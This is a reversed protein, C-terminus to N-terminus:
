SKRQWLQHQAAIGWVKATSRVLHYTQHLIIAFLGTWIWAITTFILSIILLLSLLVLTIGLIIPLYRVSLLLGAFIGKKSIHGFQMYIFFQHIIWSFILWGCLYPLVTFLLQEPNSISWLDYFHPLLWYAPAFIIITELWYFLFMPKWAYKIGKFFMIGKDDQHHMSYFLGANIFPSIVMRILFLGGLMWLYYNILDTKMIQFQGEILFMQLSTETPTPDPYRELIPIVISNIFRYLFFGWILQYLFLIIVIYFHQKVVSWSKKIYQM